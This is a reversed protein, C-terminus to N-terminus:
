RASHTRQRRGLRDPRQLQLGHRRAADRRVLRALRECLGVSDAYLLDGNPNEDFNLRVNDNRVVVTRAIPSATRRRQRHGHLHGASGPHSYGGADLTTTTGVSSVSITVGALGEGPEYEGNGATDNFVVGTMFPETNATSALDITTDTQRYSYSGGSTTDQSAIGIGVQRDDPSQGGIDLLM